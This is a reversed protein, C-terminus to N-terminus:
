DVVNVTHEHLFARVRLLRPFSPSPSLPFPLPPCFFLPPSLRIIHLPRFLAKQIVASSLTRFRIPVSASLLEDKALSVSFRPRVHGTSCPKAAHKSDEDDQWSAPRGQEDSATKMVYDLRIVRGRQWFLAPPPPTGGEQQRSYRGFRNTKEPPLFPDIRAFYWSDKAAATM